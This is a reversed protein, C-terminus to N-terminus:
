ERKQLQHNEHQHGIIFATLSEPLGIITPGDLLSASIEM